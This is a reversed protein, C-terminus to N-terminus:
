GISRPFPWGFRPLTEMYRAIMVRVPRLEEATAANRRSSIKL